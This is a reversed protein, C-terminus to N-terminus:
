SVAQILGLTEHYALEPDEAAERDRVEIDVCLLQRTRAATIDADGLASQWARETSGHFLSNRLPPLGAITDASVDNLLPDWRGPLRDWSWSLASFDEGKQWAVIKMSTNRRFRRLRSHRCGHRALRSSTWGTLSEAACRGGLFGEFLADEAVPLPQGAAPALVMRADIAGPAGLLQRTQRGEAGFGVLNIRRVGTEGPLRTEVGPMALLGGEDLTVLPAQLLAVNPAAAEGPRHRRVRGAAQVVSRTSSPDLIAYDFDLDNGTEIVPSCVLVIEIDRVGLARAREFLGESLCLGRLGAHPDEGKRTLARKLQDEIWGRGLRTFRSHLCIVARIRGEAPDPLGMALRATHSIRTARVFGASLRFGDVEVAHRDHMRSCCDSVAAPLDELRDFSLLEAMRRAPAAALAALVAERTRALCRAFDIGEDTGALSGPADSTCLAHVHDRLGFAKAHASWGARYAAYLAQAIRPTVTASMIILRRGAVGTQYALRGVVALDEPSYQDVEDLVLDSTAVRLTAALHRAREPSASGIVNDITACLIPCSALKRLKSGRNRRFAGDREALLDVFAPVNRDVDHTLGLLWDDEGEAGDEPIESGAGIVDIPDLGGLMDGSGTEVKKADRFAIPPSGVMVSVDRESFGLDGIYEKGSQTALVRLGLGLTFRLSRREPVADAFAAAALISPAARTKGTGTGAMLCAFFGGEGSAALAAARAAAQGQWGFRGASSPYRISKPVESELLGPYSLRSSVMADFSSRAADVVREVHRHLSDAAHRGDQTTNAIHGRGGDRSKEKRASAFHDALMLSTRGYLDLVDLVPDPETIKGLERQLRPIWGQEHWFPLGDAVQLADAPLDADLNMHHDSRIAAFDETLMPQRHHGLILLGVAEAFGGQDLFSFPVAVGDQAARAAAHAEGGRRAAASMAQDIAAADIAKLRGDMCLEDWALASIMEHRVADPVTERGAIAARLKDQFLRTAKGLDHFMAAIRIIARMTAATGSVPQRCAARGHTAIPAQGNEDFRKRSGVRFLVRDERESRGFGHVAVSTARTATSKLDRSIRDLCQNSAHGRWTRDGIRMLYRDLVWASKARSRGTSRCVAVVERM